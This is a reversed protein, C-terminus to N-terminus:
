FSDLIKQATIKCFDYQEKISKHALNIEVDNKIIKLLLDEITIWCNDQKILNDKYHIMHLNFPHTIIEIPINNLFGQKLSFIHDIHYEKKSRKVDNPNIIGKNNRYITLTRNMAIRKYDNFDNVIEDNIQTGNSIRTKRTKEPNNYTESGYKEKLTKKRQKKFDESEFLNTVGYKETISKEYNNKISKKYNKISGYKSIATNTRKKIFSGDSNNKNWTSSWREYYEESNKVCKDGCYKRYGDRIRAYGVEGGCVKCVPINKLENIYHYVKKKFDLDKLIDISDCWSIIENYLDKNNSELWKKNCKKGSINDTTFYNFLDLNM